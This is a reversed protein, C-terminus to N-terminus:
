EEVKVDKYKDFWAQREEKSRHNEGGQIRYSPLNQESKKNQEIVYVLSKWGRAITTDIIECQKSRSVTALENLQMELSEWPILTGFNSLYNFYKELKEKIQDSFGYVDIANMNRNIWEEVKEKKTKRKRPKKEVKDLLNPSPPTQPPLPPTELVATANKSDKFIPENQENLTPTVETAGLITNNTNIKKTNIINTNLLIPNEVYQVELPQNELLQKQPNEYFIYDYEIRGSDTENPFKKIVELYGFKKLEALTSNIATENEKLISKLGSVSYNWTDPLALVVSLLGKAKLSMEKERLHINSMVTYNQNKVVRIVSM